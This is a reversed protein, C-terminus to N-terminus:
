INPNILVKGFSMNKQYFEIAENIQELAFTKQVDTKLSTRLMSKLNYIMMAKGILGKNKVWLSLFFGKIKKMKFMLDGPNVLFRDNELSGYIYATSKPPMNKLIKSTLDGCVADLLCLANLKQSLDKLKTEFDEDTQNLVYDAGDKQLIEEQEKRRVINIVKIGNLKFTRMIMRGLSSAAATNIIAKYNQQKCLDLMCVATMPNVFCTAGEEYSMKDDLEICNSSDVAIYGSWTGNSADLGSLSVKKGKLHWGMLGGGSEIVLGSGESGLNIPLKKSFSGSVKALDLPNIPAAFLRVLVQNPGPKPIPIEQIALPKTFDQIVVSRM